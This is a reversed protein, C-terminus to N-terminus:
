RIVEAGLDSFDDDAGHDRQVIRGRGFEPPGRRGDNLWRELGDPTLGKPPHHGDWAKAFAAAQERLWACATPADRLPAHHTVIRELTTLYM